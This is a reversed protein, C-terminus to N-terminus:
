PRGGKAAKPPALAGSAPPSYADNVIWTTETGRRLAFRRALQDIVLYGDRFAVNTLAEHRDQDVVFIAPYDADPAFAFYTAHGDDFVRSPLNAASGTFSYAHNVDRPPAPPPVAAISVVAPAPYDFRLGYVVDRERATPQRAALAFNYRRLNTIVAMNTRAHSSIPKLFLLNARRNPTIQWSLSDGISVNEIREADGFEITLQYGLTATLEIVQDPDYRVTRIRADALGPTPQVAAVAPPAILGFLITALAILPRRM